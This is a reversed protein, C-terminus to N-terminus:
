VKAFDGEFGDNLERLVATVFITVNDKMMAGFNNDDDGRYKPIFTIINMMEDHLDTELLQLLFSVPDLEGYIQVDKLEDPVLLTEELNQMIDKNVQDLSRKGIWSATFEKCRATFNPVKSLDGKMLSLIEMNNFKDGVKAFLPRNDVPAQEVADAPKFSAREKM